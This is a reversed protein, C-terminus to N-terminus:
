SAVETTITIADGDSELLGALDGRAMDGLVTAQRAEVVLIAATLVRASSSAYEGLLTTHTAVATNELERGGAAVTGLDSTDFQAVLSDFVEDNRQDASLGTIGAIQEAYSRHNNAIVAIAGDEDPVGADLATQYLDSASLELEQAQRLLDADDATPSSPPAAAAPGDSLLVAAAGLLGAAGAVGLLGRRSTRTVAPDPDVDSPGKATMCVVAEGTPLREPLELADATDM